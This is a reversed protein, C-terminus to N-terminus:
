SCPHKPPRQYALREVLNQFIVATPDCIDMHTKERGWLREVAKSKRANACGDGHSPALGLGGNTWTSPSLSTLALAQVFGRSSVSRYQYQGM